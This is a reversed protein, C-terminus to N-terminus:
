ERRKRIMHLESAQRENTSVMTRLGDENTVLLLFRVNIMLQHPFKLPPERYLLRPEAALPDAIPRSTAPEPGTLQQKKM